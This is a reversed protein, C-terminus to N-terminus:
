CLWAGADDSLPVQGHENLVIIQINRENDAIDTKGGQIDGVFVNVAQNGTVAVSIVAVFDM